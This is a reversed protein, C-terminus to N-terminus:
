TVSSSQKPNASASRTRTAIHDYLTALFGILPFGSKPFPSPGLRHLASQADPPPPHLSHLQASARYFVAPDSPLDSASQSPTM